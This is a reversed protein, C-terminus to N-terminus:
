GANGDPRDPQREPAREADPSHEGAPEGGAQEMGPLQGGSVPQEAGPQEAGPQEAGPTPPQGDPAPPRNDPAPQEPSGFQTPVRRLHRNLSRYLFYVAVVLLLVVLLGIPSGKGVDSDALAPSGIALPPM